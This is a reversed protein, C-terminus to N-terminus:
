PLRGLQRLLRITLAVGTLKLVGVIIGGCSSYSAKAAMSANSGPLM